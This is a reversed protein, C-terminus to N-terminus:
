HLDRFGHFPPRLYDITICAEGKDTIKSDFAIDIRDHVAWGIEEGMIHHPLNFADLFENLSIYMEMGDIMRGNLDNVIKEVANISSYFTQNTLPELIMENRGGSVIVTQGEQHNEVIREKKDDVIKERIGHATEEGVTKMVKDRYEKFATTSVQYATALAANRRANITNAGIFCGASTIALVAAPVYPKWATKVVEVPKLSDEPELGLEERKQDILLMAKPTAKIASYMATGMGLIGIGTLIAPGHKVVGNKFAKAANIITVKNMEKLEGKM